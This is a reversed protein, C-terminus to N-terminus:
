EDFLEKVFGERSEFKKYDELLIKINEPSLIGGREQKYEKKSQVKLPLGQEKITAKLFIRVATTTDFWLENFLMDTEKKLNEDRRVQMLTTAM